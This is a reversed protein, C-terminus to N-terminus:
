SPQDEYLWHKAKIVSSFDMATIGLKQFGLVTSAPSLYSPSLAVAVRHGQLYKANELYADKIVFADALDNEASMQTSDFLVYKFARSKLIPVLSAMMEYRQEMTLLGFFHVTITSTENDTEISTPM